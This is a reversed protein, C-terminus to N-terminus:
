SNTWLAHFCSFVSCDSWRYSVSEQCWLLKSTVDTRAGFEGPPLSLIGSVVVVSHRTEFAPLLYILDKYFCIQLYECISNVLRNRTQLLEFNYAGLISFSHLSPSALCLYPPRSINLGTLHLHPWSHVTCIRARPAPEPLLDHSLPIHGLQISALPRLLWM